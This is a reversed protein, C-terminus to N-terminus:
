IQLPTWNVGNSNFLYSKDKEPRYVILTQDKYDSANFVISTNVCPYDTAENAVITRLTSSLDFLLSPIM